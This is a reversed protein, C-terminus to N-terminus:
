ITYGTRPPVAQFVAKKMALSRDELMEKRRETDEVMLLDTSSVM